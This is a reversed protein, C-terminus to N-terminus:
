SSGAEDLMLCRYLLVRINSVCSRAFCVDEVGGEVLRRKFQLRQSANRVVNANYEM